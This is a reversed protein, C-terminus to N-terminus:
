GFAPSRTRANAPLTPGVMPTSSRCTCRLKLLLQRRPPRASNRSPTSKLWLGLGKREEQEAGCHRAERAAAGRTSPRSRCLRAPEEDPATWAARTPDHTGRGKGGRARPVPGRSNRAGHAGQHRWSPGYALLVEQEPI